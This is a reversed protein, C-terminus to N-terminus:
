MMRGNKTIMKYEEVSFIEKPLVLDYSRGVSTEDGLNKSGLKRLLKYLPNLGRMGREPIYPFDYNDLIKVDGNPLVEYGFQGLTTAIRGQPTFTNTLRSPNPVDPYNSYRVANDNKQINFLGTKSGYKKSHLIANKIEAIEDKTFDKITIPDKKNGIVTELFIKVNTPILSEVGSKYDVDNNKQTVIFVPDVEPLESM